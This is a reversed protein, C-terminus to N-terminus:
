EGFMETIFLILAVPFTLIVVWYVISKAMGAILVEPNIM